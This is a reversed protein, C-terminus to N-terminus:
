GDCVEELVSLLRDNMEPLDVSIRQCNGLDHIAVRRVFIRNARLETFVDKETEVLFFNADSNFAKIGMMTDYRKALRYREDKIRDISPLFFERRELVKSALRLSVKSVNYSLLIHRLASAIKPCAIGYGVRLGALGFAKSLTRVVVLNDYEEVADKVSYPAFEVYAEDVIVIGKFEKVVNMVSRRDFQNGTPNNPSCIFCLVTDPTVESLLDDPDLEFGDGLPVSDYANGHTETLIRYMSFTPSLSLVRESGKVFARVVTEIIQDGGNGVVFCEPPLAIYESLANILEEEENLPYLRPDLDEELERWIKTYLGRPIFFNENSDLKVMEDREVPYTDKPYEEIRHIEALRGELWKLTM